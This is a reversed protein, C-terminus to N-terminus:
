GDRSRRRAIRAATAASIGHIPNMPAASSVRLRKGGREPGDIEALRSRKTPSPQANSISSASSNPSGNSAPTLRQAGRWNNGKVGKTSNLSVNSVVLRRAGGQSNLGTGNTNSSVKLRKAGGGMGVRGPLASFSMSAPTSSSKSVEEEEEEEKSSSLTPFPVPRIPPLSPDRLGTTYRDEDEAVIDLLFNVSRKVPPPTARPQRLGGRVRRRKPSFLLGAMPSSRRRSATNEKVPLSPVQFPNHLGGLQSREQYMRIPSQSGFLSSSGLALNTDVTDMSLNPLVNSTLHRKVPTQPVEPLISMMKSGNLGVTNSMGERKFPSSPANQWVGDVNEGPGSNWISPENPLSTGVRTTMDTFSTISAMYIDNLTKTAMGAQEVAEIESRLGVLSRASLEMFDDTALFQDSLSKDSLELKTTLIKNHSELAQCKKELEYLRQFPFGANLVPNDKREMSQISVAYLKLADEHEQMQM